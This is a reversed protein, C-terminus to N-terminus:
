RLYTQLRKKWGDLWKKENRQPPSNAVRRELVTSASKVFEALIDDSESSMGALVQLLGWGQDRYREASLIGTGKFNVYDILAYMGHPPSANALETLRAAMQARAPEDLGSSMATAALQFRQVIFAIQLDMTTALLSNLELLEPQDVATLFAERNPWPAHYGAEVIWTPLEIGHAQLFQLLAPFSEAFAEQQDERYWIFHGIGLSPFDEGPNWSTLCPLQRACENSFIQQGIWDLQAQDLAPYGAAISRSGASALLLPVLM